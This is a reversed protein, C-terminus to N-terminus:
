EFQNKGSHIYFKLQLTTVNLIFFMFGQLKNSFELSNSKFQM